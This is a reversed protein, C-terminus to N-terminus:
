RWAEELLQAMLAASRDWTCSRAREVGRSRLARRLSADGLLRILADRLAIRDGPDILM